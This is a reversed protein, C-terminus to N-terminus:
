KQRTDLKELIQRTQELAKERSKVLAVVLEALEDNNKATRIIYELQLKFEISM